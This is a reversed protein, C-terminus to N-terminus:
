PQLMLKTQIREQGQTFEVLYVGAPTGQLDITELGSGQGSPTLTTEYIVQGALNRISVRAPLLSETEYRIAFAGQTPNPYIELALEERANISGAKAGPMTFESISSFPTFEGSRISCLTCNTRIRIGYRVGPTLGTLLVESFPHTVLFQQWTAPDQSAPGYAIVYCTAGSQNPLWRIRASTNSEVNVPLLGPTVCGEPAQPRLTTAIVSESPESNVGSQCLAIVRLEYSTNGSLGTVTATNGTVGTLANFNAGSGAARYQLTYSVAGSVLSWSVSVSSTTVNSVIPAPAAVQGVVTYTQSSSCGAEDRATVTYVGAALSTFSGTTNVVNGPTLTYTYDGTGGSAAVRLSGTSGCGAAANEVLALAVAPRVTINRTINNCGFVYTREGVGNPRVTLRYPSVTAEQSVQAVGNETYTLLWPGTGTFFIDFSTEEGRCLTQNQPQSVSQINSGGRIAVKTTYNASSCGPITVTVSYVGSDALVVNARSVSAGSASFGRPGSWAYSAGAVSTATLALTQGECLPGNNSLAVEGFGDRIVVFTTITINGCAPSNIEVQYNGAAAPSINEIVPNQM